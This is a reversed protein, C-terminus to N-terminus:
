QAQLVLLRVVPLPAPKSLYTGNGTFLLIGNGASYCVSDRCIGDKNVDASASRAPNTGGPAHVRAQSQAFMRHIFELEAFASVGNNNQVQLL